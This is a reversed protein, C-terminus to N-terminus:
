APLYCVLLARGGMTLSGVLLWSPLLRLTVTCDTHAHLFLLAGVGCRPASPQSLSALLACCGM